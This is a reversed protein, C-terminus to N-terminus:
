LQIKIKEWRPAVSLVCMVCACAIIITFPTRLGDMYAVLIGPVQQPTFVERLETAGTALVLGPNVGPAAVPLSKLLKNAFGAQAASVWISGGITQFFLVMASVPALDDPKVVSQAVTAPVQFVMGIGIGLLVQYGIWQKSPTDIKFTYILGAGVAAMISGVVLVPIIHGTATMIGGAVLSFLGAALVMPILDIGSQQASAGRTTQFYLPLYYLLTFFVGAAFFIFACLSMITRDKLLRGVLLAREGSYYEIAVVVVILLSFGVLTGIVDPDSWPKTTGGWQFALLYCIIAAMITFTGFLDMHLIKEKWSAAQPRAAKPTRFFFLINALAM